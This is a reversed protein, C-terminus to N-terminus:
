SSLNGLDMYYITVTGTASVTDTATIGAVPVVNLYLATAADDAIRKPFTATAQNNSHAEFDVALANTDLDNKEIIDIMTTALTTASAAATGIGVDLDTAAVIGFTTGGKTLVLDVEVGFLMLNRDPLDCIKASGYDLAETVSVSLGTLTVTAKRAAVFNDLITVNTAPETILSSVADRLNPATLVQNTKQGM